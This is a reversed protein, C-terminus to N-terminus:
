WPYTPRQIAAVMYGTYMLYGMVLYVPTCLNTLTINELHVAETVNMINSAMNLDMVARTGPASTLYLPGSTFNLGATPWGASPATSVVGAIQLVSGASINLRSFAAMDSLFETTNSATAMAAQPSATGRTCMITVNELSVLLSRSSWSLHFM